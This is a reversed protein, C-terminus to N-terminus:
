AHGEKQFLTKQLTEPVAWAPTGQKRMAKCFLDYVLEAAFNTAYIRAMERLVARPNQERKLAPLKLWKPLMRDLEIQALHAIRQRESDGCFQAVYAPAQLVLQLDKLLGREFNFKLTRLDAANSEPNLEAGDIKM